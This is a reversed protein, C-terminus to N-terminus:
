ERRIGVATLSAHGRPGGNYFLNEEDLSQTIETPDVESSLVSIGDENSPAEVTVTPVVMRANAPRRGSETMTVVSAHVDMRDTHTRLRENLGLVDEISARSARLGFGLGLEREPELDPFYSAYARAVAVEDDESISDADAFPNSLQEQSMQANKEKEGAMSPQSPRDTFPNHGSTSGALSPPSRLPSTRKLLSPDNGRPPPLRSSGPGFTAQTRPPPRPSPSSGSPTPLTPLTSLETGTSRSRMRLPPARALPVLGTNTPLLPFDQQRPMDVYTSPVSTAPQPVRDLLILVPETAPAYVVAAHDAFPSAQDDEQIASWRAPDNGATVTQVHPPFTPAVPPAGNNAPPASYTVATRNVEEMKELDARAHTHWEYTSSRDSQFSHRRSTFFPTGSFPPQQPLYPYDAHSHISNLERQKQMQKRHRRILVFVGCFALSAVVAAIIVGAAAAPQSFFRSLYTLSM